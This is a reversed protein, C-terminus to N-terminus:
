PNFGQSFKSMCTGLIPGNEIEELAHVQHKVGPENKNKKWNALSCWTLWNETSSIKCRLAGSSRFNMDHFVEYAM